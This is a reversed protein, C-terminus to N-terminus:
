LLMKEDEKGREEEANIDLLVFAKQRVRFDLRLKVDEVGCLRSQEQGIVM